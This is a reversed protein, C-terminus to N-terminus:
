IKIGPNDNEILGIAEEPTIAPLTGRKFDAVDRTIIAEIKKNSAATFHQMADEFDRFESHLSEKIVEKTTDMTETIKELDKLIKITEAHSTM